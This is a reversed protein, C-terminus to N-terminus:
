EDNEDWGVIDTKSKVDTALQIGDASVVLDMEAVCERGSFLHNKRVKARSVIGFKLKQQNQIRQLEKKRSLQLILSSMYYLAEGGKEKWGVSGINAYVQNICLISITHEGTEPKRFKEVNKNLRRIGWSVEKATVGPQKSYDDEADEDDDDDSDEANNLTAGVSDWVVLIKIDPNQGKTEKIYRIVDRIGRIINKSKTILLFEPAGGMELFRQMDFKNESDWLIVVTGSFQAAKMFLMATTTKGSDPKGAIQVIRGYPLGKVGTLPQWFLVENSLVYDSDNDHMKILDGTTLDDALGKHKKGYRGKALEVLDKVNIGAPPPPKQTSASTDQEDVVTENDEAKKRAM